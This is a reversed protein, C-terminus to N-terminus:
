VTGTTTGEGENKKPEPEVSDEEGETDDEDDDDNDFGMKGMLGMLVGAAEGARQRREEDSMAGSRSLDRIGAAQRLVGEFDNMLMEQGRELKRQEIVDPSVNEQGEDVYDSSPDKLGGQQLIAGLAKEGREKDEQTEGVFATIPPLNSSDPPEYLNSKDKVEDALAAQMSASAAEAAEAYQQKLEQQKAGGMVASSWVTGCVAEVVRAFGDKDRVDHGTAVGHESLDVEVYEYGRDLCWLIRRSYEQEYVKTNRNAEEIAGASIGICLRLLEGAQVLEEARNHVPEVANFSSAATPVAVTGDEVSTVTTVHDFVLILGDEKYPLVEEKNVQEEQQQEPGIEQMVVHATFYRNSVTLRPAAGNHNQVTVNSSEAQDFHTLLAKRLREVALNDHSAGGLRVVSLCSAM